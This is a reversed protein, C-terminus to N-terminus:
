NNEMLKKKARYEEETIEGKALRQKLIEIPKSSDDKNKNILKYVLFIIGAIVLIWFIWWFFHMGGMGMYDHDCHYM